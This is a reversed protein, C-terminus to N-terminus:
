FFAETLICAVSIANAAPNLGGSVIAVVYAGACFGDLFDGGQIMELQENSITKM